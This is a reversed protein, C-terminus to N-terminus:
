QAGAFASEVCLEVVQDGICKLIPKNGNTCEDELPFRVCVSLDCETGLALLPQTRVKEKKKKEYKSLQSYVDMLAKHHDDTLRAWACMAFSSAVLLLLTM